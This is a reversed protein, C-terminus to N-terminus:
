DEIKLFGEWRKFLEATAVIDGLCYRAIDRFKGDRFFPGLDAGSLGDGKPSKIGFAKCYFDLNFRRTVGYFTMQELLDCHKSSEYRYPMLNRTAPVSLIASRMTLFPCDFSRGNFTIFRDYWKVAEWFNKLLSAEDGSVYEIKKDDSFFQEKVNSQYFVKGSMTDPNLMGIAIIQATLAYLSLKQEEAKREEENEAAKLLYKQQADDFTELPFALTEIDFVVRAM